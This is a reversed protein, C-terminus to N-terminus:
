RQMAFSADYVAYTAYYFEILLCKNIKKFDIEELPM